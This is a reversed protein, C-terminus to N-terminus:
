CDLLGNLVEDVYGIFIIRRSFVYKQTINIINKALFKKFKVM